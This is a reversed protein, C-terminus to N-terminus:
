NWNIIYNALSYPKPRWNNLHTTLELLFFSLLVDPRTFSVMPFNKLIKTKGKVQTPMDGRSYSFCPTRPVSSAFSPEIEVDPHPLICGVKLIKRISDLKLIELLKQSYNIAKEESTFLPTAYGFFGAVSKDNFAVTDMFSEINKVIEIAKEPTVISKVEINAIAGDAPIIQYESGSQESYLIPCNMADYILVDIQNSLTGERSLVKGTTVGYKMPLVSKLYNRVEEERPGGRDPPHEYIQETQTFKHQFNKVKAKTYKQKDIMSNTQNINKKGLAPM